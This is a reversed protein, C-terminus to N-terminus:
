NTSLIIDACETGDDLERYNLAVMEVAPRSGGKENGIWVETPEGDRNVEPWFSVFRKLEAVSIASRGDEPYNFGTKVATKGAGMVNNLCAAVHEALLKRRADREEIPGPPGGDVTIVFDREYTAQGQYFGKERLKFVQNGESQWVETNNEM